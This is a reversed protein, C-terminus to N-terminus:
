AVKAAEGKWADELNTVYAAHAKDGDTGPVQHDVIGDRLPDKGDKKLGAAFTVFSTQFQGDNWDKVAADGLKSTVVAKRIAAEDMSDSITVAPALKKAQDITTAFNKAAARMQEPTVAADKLQQKLTVIETDKTSVTTTLTAIQTEAATKKSNADALQGQLKAIVEAGADTVEISIGDFIIKRLNMDPEKKPNPNHDGIRCQSGARGASVIAIHNGRIRRQVADYEQGDNTRGPTFDLECDYGNSLERQGGEWADIAAQDTVMMPIRVFGGDRTVENSAVGVAFRKWNKATVSEPPHDLTIPRHAFSAMSDAHFVEEEPRYVRVVAIDPKGVESGLYNQIGTRAIKADAVLYGDGTRRVDGVTLKDFMLM